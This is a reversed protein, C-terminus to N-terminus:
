YQMAKLLNQQLDNTAKFNLDKFNSESFINLIYLVAERKTLNRKKILRSYLNQFKNMINENNKSIKYVKEILLNM